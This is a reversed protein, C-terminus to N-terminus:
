GRFGSRRMAALMNKWARSDSPTLHVTVGPKTKDPPLLMLKGGKLEKRTWGQSEADKVLKRLNKTFESM